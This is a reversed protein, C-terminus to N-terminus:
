DGVIVTRGDLSQVPRYNHAYVDTYAAIQESSMEIPDTFVFWDIGQSCPPTTLSGPYSWRDANGPDDPLLAELNVTGAVREVEGDESPLDETLEEFAPNERGREAFVGFVVVGGDDAENVFHFELPFSKGDVLHESSAHFHFRELEYGTGDVEVTSGPEVFAEVSHGNNDLEIEAERYDFSVPAPSGKKAASLDIPSQEDGEGCLAYSDDISGWKAPGEAGSYSFHPAEEASTTAVTEDDGCGTSSAAALAVTALALVRVRAHTGRIQTRM